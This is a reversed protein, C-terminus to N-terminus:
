FIVSKKIKIINCFFLSKLNDQNILFNDDTWGLLFDFTWQASMTFTFGFFPTNSSVFYTAIYCEYGAWNDQIRNKVRGALQAPQFSLSLVAAYQYHTIKPLCAVEESINHSIIRYENIEEPAWNTKRHENLHEEKNLYSM